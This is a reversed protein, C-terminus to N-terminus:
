ARGEKTALFRDIAERLVEGYPGHEALKERQEDTLRVSTTRYGPRSRDTGTYVRETGGDRAQLEAVLGASTPETGVPRRIILRQGTRKHYAMAPLGTELAQRVSSVFGVLEKRGRLMAMLRVVEGRSARDIM